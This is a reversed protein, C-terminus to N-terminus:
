ARHVRAWWVSSVNLRFLVSFHDIFGRGRFFLFSVSSGLWHNHNSLFLFNSSYCFIVYFAFCWLIFLITCLLFPDLGICVVAFPRIPLCLVMQLGAETEGEAGNGSCDHEQKVEKSKRMSKGGGLICKQWRRPALIDSMRLGWVGTGDRGKYTWAADTEKKETCSSEARM